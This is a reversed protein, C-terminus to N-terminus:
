NLDKVIIFLQIRIFNQVIRHLCSVLKPNLTWPSYLLISLNLHLCSQRYLSLYLYLRLLHALLLRLLTSSVQLDSHNHQLLLCYHLTPELLVLALWFTYCFFNRLHEIHFMYIDFRCYIKLAFSLINIRGFLINYFSDM